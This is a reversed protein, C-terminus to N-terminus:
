HRKGRLRKKGSDSGIDVISAELGDPELMQHSSAEDAPLENQLGGPSHGDIPQESDEWPLDPESRAEAAIDELNERFTAITGQVTGAALLIGRTAMVAASRLRRRIPPSAIALVTGALILNVPSTGKVINAGWRLVNM